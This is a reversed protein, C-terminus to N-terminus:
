GRMWGLAREAAKINNKTAKREQLERIGISAQHLSQRVFGRSGVEISECHAKWGYRRCEEVLELYKAKKHM